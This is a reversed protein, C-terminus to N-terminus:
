SNTKRHSLKVQECNSKSTSVKERMELVVVSNGQIGKIVETPTPLFSNLTHGWSVMRFWDTLPNELDFTGGLFNLLKIASTLLELSARILILLTGVTWGWPVGQTDSSSCPSPPVTDCLGESEAMQQNAQKQPSTQDLYPIVLLLSFFHPILLTSLYHFRANLVSFAGLAPYRLKCSSWKSGKLSLFSLRPLGTLDRGTSTRM